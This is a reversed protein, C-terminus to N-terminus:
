EAKGGHGATNGDPRIRIRPWSLAADKGPLVISGSAVATPAAKAPGKAAIVPHQQAIAPSVPGLALLALAKTMGPDMDGDGAHGPDSLAYEPALGFGNFAVGNDTKLM